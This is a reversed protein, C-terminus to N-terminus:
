GREIEIFKLKPVRCVPCAAPPDDGLYIFGCADCVFVRTSQLLADGEVQYREILAKAMMTAKESWILSRLAGRDAEETAIAKATPYRRGLDEALLPVLQSFSARASLRVQATFYDALQTFAEAEDFLLQRECGQALSSCIAALEGASHKTRTPKKM